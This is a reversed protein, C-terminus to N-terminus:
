KAYKKELGPKILAVAEELAVEMSAAYNRVVLRFQKQVDEPWAPNVYEAIPDSANSYAQANFGDILLGVLTKDDKIGTLGLFDETSAPLTEPLSEDFAEWSIVQPNKGRTQGVRIRTGKGKRTKNTEAAKSRAAVLEPKEAVEAVGTKSDAM